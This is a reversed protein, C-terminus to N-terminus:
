KSIRGQQLSLNPCHNFSVYFKEQPPFLSWNERSYSKILFNAPSRVWLTKMRRINQELLSYIQGKEKQKLSFLTGTRYASTKTCRM